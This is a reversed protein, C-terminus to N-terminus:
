LMTTAIQSAARGDRRSRAAGIRRRIGSNERRAETEIICSNVPLLWHQLPDGLAPGGCGGSEPETSGETLPRTWSDWLRSNPGATSTAGM